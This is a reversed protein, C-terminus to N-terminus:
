QSNACATFSAAQPELARVARTGHRYSGCPAASAPGQFIQPRTKGHLPRVSLARSRQCRAVGVGHRAAAPASRDRRRLSDFDAVDRCYILQMAPPAIWGRRIRIPLLVFPSVGKASRCVLSLCGYGAHRTLIELEGDALGDIATADAPVTEITTGPAPRSLAPVSFFLGRCYSRFGQAEIIPWTWTAPSINCYTVEGHRQAIKTLM